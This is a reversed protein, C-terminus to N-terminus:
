NKSFPVRPGRLNILFRLPQLAKPWSDIKALCKPCNKVHKLMADLARGQEELSPGKAIFRARCPARHTRAM